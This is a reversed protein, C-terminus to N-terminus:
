AGAFGEAGAISTGWSRGSRPVSCHSEFFHGARCLQIGFLIFIKVARRLHTLFHFPEKTSDLLEASNRSAVVFQRFSEHSENM